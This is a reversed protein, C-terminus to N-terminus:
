QKRIKHTFVRAAREVRQLEASLDIVKKVQQFEEQMMGDTNGDPADVAFIKAAEQQQRHLNAVFDRDEHEAAHQIVEQVKTLEEQIIDDSFGDPADVAFIKAAEEQQQHLTQVFMPDEFKAANEIIEDVQHLELDQIDEPTGDPADVAFEKVKKHLLTEEPPPPPAPVDAEFHFERVFSMDYLRDARQVLDDTYHYEADCVPKVSSSFRTLVRVPLNVRGRVIRTAALGFRSVARMMMTELLHTTALNTQHTQTTVCICAAFVHM